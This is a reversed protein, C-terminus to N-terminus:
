SVCLSLAVLSSMLFAVQQISCICVSVGLFIVVTHGSVELTVFLGLRVLRRLEGKQM